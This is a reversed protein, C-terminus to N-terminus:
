HCLMIDHRGMFIRNYIKHIVFIYLIYSFYYVYILQLIIVRIIWIYRKENETQKQYKSCNKKLLSISFIRTRSDDEHKTNKRVLVVIIDHAHSSAIFVLGVYTLRSYIRDYIQCCKTPKLHYAKVM